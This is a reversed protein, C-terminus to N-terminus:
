RKRVLLFVVHRASVINQKVIAGEGEAVDIGSYSANIVTIFLLKSCLVNTIFSCFLALCSTKPLVLRRRSTLTVNRGVTLRGTLRPTLGLGSKTVTV